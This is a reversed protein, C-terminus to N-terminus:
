KSYVIPAVSNAWGVTSLRLTVPDSVLSAMVGVNRSDPVSSSQPTRSDLVFQKGADAVEALVVLTNYAGNRYDTEILVETDEGDLAYGWTEAQGEVAVAAREVFTRNVFRTVVTEDTLDTPYGDVTSPIRTDDSDCLLRLIANAYRNAEDYEAGARGCRVAVQVRAYESEPQAKGVVFEPIGGYKRVTAALMRDADGPSVGPTYAIGDEINDEIHEAIDSELTASSDCWIEYNCVVDGPEDTRSRQSSPQLYFPVGISMASYVVTM